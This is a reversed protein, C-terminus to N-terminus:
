ARSLSKLRVSGKPMTFAAAPMMPRNKLTYLQEFQMDATLVMGLTNIHSAELLSSVVSFQGNVTCPPQTESNVM